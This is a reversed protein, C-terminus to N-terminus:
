QNVKKKWVARYIPQGKEMFEHEYETIVDEDHPEKRFDDNREVLEFLDGMNELSYEYLGINDTKLIVRGEEPLLNWYKQRFKVATLRRKAHSKKPWPDSFNLHVASLEGPEFWEEIMEADGVIYKMNPGPEPCKKLGIAAADPSKELAIWGTEPYMKAMGIWYSGKGAGIELRVEETKLVEKWRGKYEAPDNVVVDTREAIYPVAWKKKRMRM